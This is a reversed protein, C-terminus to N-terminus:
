GRGNQTAELLRQLRKLGEPIFEQTSPKGRKKELKSLGLEADEMWECLTSSLIGEWTFSIALVSVLIDIKESFNHSFYRPLSM